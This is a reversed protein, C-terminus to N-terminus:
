RRHPRPPRPGPGHPGPRFHHPPRPPGWYPGPRGWGPGWRPGWRPGSGFYFSIGPRPRPPAYYYVPPPPAAVIVEPQTVITPPCATVTTAPPEVYVVEPSSAVAAPAASGSSTLYQLFNASAGMSNLEIVEQTTLSRSLKQNQIMSIIVNEQVGNQLMLKIDAFDLAMASFVGAFSLVGALILSRLTFM